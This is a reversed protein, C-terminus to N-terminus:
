DHANTGMMSNALLQAVRLLLAIQELRIQPLEDMFFAVLISKWGAGTPAM